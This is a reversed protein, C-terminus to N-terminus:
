LRLHPTPVAIADASSLPLHACIRRHPDQNRGCCDGSEQQSNGPDPAVLANLPGASRRDSKLTCGFRVFASLGPATCFRLAETRGRQQRTCNGVDWVFRVGCSASRDCQYVKVLELARVRAGTQVTAQPPDPPHGGTPPQLEDVRPVPGGGIGAGVARHICSLPVGRSCREGVNAVRVLCIWRVRRPRVGGPVGSVSWRTRPTSRLRDLEHVALPPVGQARFEGGVVAPGRQDSPAHGGGVGVLIEHLAVTREHGGAGAQHEGLESLAEVAENRGAGAIGAEHGAGGVPGVQM